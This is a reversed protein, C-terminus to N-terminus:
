AAEKRASRPMTALDRFREAPSLPLPSDPECGPSFLVTDGTGSMQAAVLTADDLDACRVITAGCGYESLAAAMADDSQGFLLVHSAKAGAALAWRRLPQGGRRGGAILLVPSDIAALAAASRGPRTALADSVWRVGGRVAVTELCDPGPIAQRVVPGLDRVKAGAAIATAVAVLLDSLLAPGEIGLQDRQCLGVPKRRNGNRAVIAGDVWAVDPMRTGGM